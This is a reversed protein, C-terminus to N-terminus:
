YAIVEGQRGTKWFVLLKWTLDGYKSGSTFLWRKYSVLGVKLAVVNLNEKTKGAM